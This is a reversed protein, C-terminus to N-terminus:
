RFIGRIQRGVESVWGQVARAVRQRITGRHLPCLGEPVQDGDKFYETYLPCGDVPQRFVRRACRKRTCAPPGNSSTRGAADAGRQQM